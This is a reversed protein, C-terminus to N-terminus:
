KKKAAGRRYHDLNAFYDVPVRAWDRAPASNGIASLEAELSAPSFEAGSRSSKRAGTPQTTARRPKIATAM